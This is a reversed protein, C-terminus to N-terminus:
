GRLLQRKTKNFIKTEIASPDGIVIIENITDNHNIRIRSFTAGDVLGLNAKGEKVIQRM